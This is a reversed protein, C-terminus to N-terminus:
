AVWPAGEKRRSGNGVSTASGAYRGHREWGDPDNLVAGLLRAGVVSFQDVAQRLARRHVGGVRVVLIVGDAMRGLIAADPTGLAPPSDFLLLDYKTTLVGLVEDMRRGGLLESPNDVGGGAPLVYLDHVGARRVATTLDAERLLVETLGPYSPLGLRGALGSTRLDADVLLVKLGQQASVLGLNAVATTKGEGRAASAILLSRPCDAAQQFLLNTRLTRYAELDQQAAGGGSRIGFSWARLGKRGARGPDGSAETPMSGNSGNSSSAAASATQRAVAQRPIVALSPIRLLSELDERRRISRDLRSRIGGVLCGLLLGGATSLSLTTWTRRPVPVAGDAFAVIEVGNRQTADDVSAAYFEEWLRESLREMARLRQEAQVLALAAGVENRGDMTSDPPADSRRDVELRLEALVSDQRRISTRLAERRLARRRESNRADLDHFAQVVANVIRVAAGPDMAEFTVVVADLASRAEYALGDRMYEIARPRSIIELEHMGRPADVDVSFRLGERVVDSGPGTAVNRGADVLGKTSPELRLDFRRSTEAPEILDVDSLWAPPLGTARDILRLGADDSAAGLVSASTLLATRALALDSMEGAGGMASGNTETSAFVRIVSEARFRDPQTQLWLTSLGLGLAGALAILRARRRIGGGGTDLSRGMLPPRSASGSREDEHFAADGNRGNLEDIM